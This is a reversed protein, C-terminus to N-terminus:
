KKLTRGLEREIDRKKITERKDYKKKGRVVAITLKLKSNKNYVSLPIVTLGRKEEAQSIVAIEKKNLLIRRPRTPDYDKPTNGAQYPPINAWVLFAEGGRAIIRAGALDGQGKKLSKVEFGFLEMGAEFTELVEYNMRAKKNSVLTMILHYCTQSLFCFLSVYGYEQTIVRAYIPLYPGGFQPDYVFAALVEANQRKFFRESHSLLLAKVENFYRGVSLRGHGFYHFVAFIKVKLVFFGALGPDMGMAGFCLVNLNLYTGALM